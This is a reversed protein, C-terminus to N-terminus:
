IASSELYDAARRLLNPDDSFRGIATNCPSCLLGRVRGTEHDHDIHPSRGNWGRWPGGCVACLNDQRELMVRFEQVTLGHRRVQGYLRKCATSCAWRGPEDIVFSTGCTRCPRETGVLKARHHARLSASLNQSHSLTREAPLGARVRQSWAVQEEESMQEWRRLQALRHGTGIAHLPRGTRLQRNHEKCLDHSESPRDCEPGTCTPSKLRSRPRLPRLQGEQLQVRRHPKCLGTKLHARKNHCGEYSCEVSEM